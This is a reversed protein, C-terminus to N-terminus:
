AKPKLISPPSESERHVFYAVVAFLLGGVVSAPVFWRLWPTEIIGVILGIALIAAARTGLFGLKKEVVRIDQHLFRWLSGRKPKRTQRKQTM